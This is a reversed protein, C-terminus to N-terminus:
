GIFAAGAANETALHTLTSEIAWVNLGKLSVNTTELMYFMKMNLQMIVSVASSATVTLERIPVRYRLREVLESSGIEYTQGEIEVSGSGQVDWVFLPLALPGTWGSALELRAQKSFPISVPDPPAYIGIWYRWDALRDDLIISAMGEFTIPTETWLGPYTLTAGAPIALRVGEMPVAPLLHSDAIANDSASAYIAAVTESYPWSGPESVPNIPNLVLDPNAQLDLVGAVRGDADWYYVGLDPDYLEWRDGARVEPVVHGGVSWIRAEYGAGRAIEVLSAARDACFGFGTSNLTGWPAVHFQVPMTPIYHATSDRVFRWLKRPFVEDKVEDPLASIFEVLQRMSEFLPFGNHVLAFDVASDATNRLQVASAAPLESRLEARKEVEGVAFRFDRGMTTDGDSVVVKITAEGSSGPTILLANSGLEYRVQAVAEDSSTVQVKLRSRDFGRVRLPVKTDRTYPSNTQDPIVEFAPDPGSGGCASVLGALGAAALVQRRTVLGTAQLADSPQL